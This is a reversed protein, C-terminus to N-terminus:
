EEVKNRSVYTITDSGKPKVFGDRKSGFKHELVFGGYFPHFIPKPNTVLKYATYPWLWGYAFSKFSIVILALSCYVVKDSRMVLDSIGSFLKVQKGKVKRVILDGMQSM